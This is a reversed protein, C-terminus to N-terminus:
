DFEVYEQSLQSIKKMADDLIQRVAKVPIRTTKGFRIECLLRGKDDVGVGGIKLTYSSTEIYKESM